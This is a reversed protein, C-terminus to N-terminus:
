SGGPRPKGRAAICVSPFIALVPLRVTDHGVPGIRRSLLCGATTHQVCCVGSSLPGMDISNRTIKVLNARDWAM